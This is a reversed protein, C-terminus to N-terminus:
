RSRRRCLLLLTLGGTALLLLTGPEPVGVTLRLAEANGGLSAIEWEWRLASGLPAGSVDFVIGSLDANTIGEEATLVDFRAGLAPQFGGVLNVEVTGGLTATDSVDIWDYGDTAAGQGPGGLEALMTGTQNYTGIVSLSGPSGGASLTGGAEVTVPGVSGSLMLVGEQVLVSGAISNADSSLIWTGSDMKLLGGPGGTSTVTGTITGTGIGRLYLTHNNLEFNGSLTASSAASGGMNTMAVYLPSNSDLSFDNAYSTGTGNFILGGPWKNTTADFPTLNGGNLTVPGSGLAGTVPVRLGCFPQTPGRGKYTTGGSYSNAANNLYVQGGGAQATMLLAGNGTIPGNFEYQYGPCRIDLTASAAINIENAFYKPYFNPGSISPQTAADAVFQLAAGGLRYARPTSTDNSFTLSNLVLPSAIDQNLPVGATGINSTNDPFVIDTTGASVPVGAADWNGANNWSQSTGDGGTWTYIAAPAPGPLGVVALGGAILMTICARKM